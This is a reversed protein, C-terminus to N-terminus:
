AMLEPPMFTPGELGSAGLREAADTTCFILENRERLAFFASGDWSRRDLQWPGQVEYERYGCGACTREVVGAPDLRASSTARVRVVARGADIPEFALGTLGEREVWDVFGSSAAYMPPVHMLDVVADLDRVSIRYVADPSVEVARGCTGCRRKDGDDRAVLELGTDEGSLLLFEM